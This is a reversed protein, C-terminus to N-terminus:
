NSHVYRIASKGFFFLSTVMAALSLIFLPSFGLLSSFPQSFGLIWVFGLPVWPKTKNTGIIAMYTFLVLSVDYYNVHPPMLVLAPMAVALQATMDARRGGTVWIVAVVGLTVMSMLWGILLSVSNKWGLTAQFFGVWSIAKDYNIGADAQALWTTFHYWSQVWMPGSVLVGIGYLILSIFLSGVGVLWRGSIVYLGILPIGFQPKFLLLGLIMGALLEKKALVARWSLVILLFTIATNQGGLIARFMPYFSLAICAVFLYNQRIQEHIPCLLLIATFLVAVMFITHVFYSIRYPILALPYYAVALFPPYPFPMLVNDEGPYLDKQLETQKGLNYLNNWDGQAILRGAGYFAPYDGGLRGTLTSAGQGVFIAIFFGAALAFLFARPYCKLRWPTFFSPLEASKNKEPWNM